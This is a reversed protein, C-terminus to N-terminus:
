FALKKETVEQRVNNKEKDVENELRSIKERLQSNEAHERDLKGQM